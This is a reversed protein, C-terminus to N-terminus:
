KVDGCAPGLWKATFNSTTNMTRDGSTAVMHVSGKVNEPSLAEVQFTGDSKMGQEACELRVELKSSTSTIITRTCSKREEGFAFAKDLQEKTLCGKKTTTRPAGASRAKMTEEMKARQEPTLKALLDPPIPMEGRTTVTTTREWLGLRVNLPQVKDTVWAPIAITFILGLLIRTRM